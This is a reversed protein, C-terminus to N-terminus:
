GDNLSSQSSIISKRNLQPIEFNDHYRSDNPGPPASYGSKPTVDADDIHTQDLYRMQAPAKRAGDREEYISDSNKM